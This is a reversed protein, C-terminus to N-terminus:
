PSKAHGAIPQAFSTRRRALRRLPLAQAIRGASSRERGCEEMMRAIATQRALAVVMREAIEDLHRRIFLDAKSDGGRAIIATLERGILELITIERQTGALDCRFGDLARTLDRM